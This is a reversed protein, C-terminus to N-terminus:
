SHRYKVSSRKEFLELLLKMRKGKESQLQPDQEVVMQAQKRALPILPQHEEFDFFAYQPLGSQQTGLIEGSGRLKMDEEAIIFGDDTQRMVQLRRKAVSTLRPHYLLLCNSKDAGRGVRGRLQHLQALGFNEAHEIIMITAEPVDVGVEIVTTAVLLQIPQPHDKETFRAMIEDKEKAKMKGHVLGVRDGFYHKLHLFREEVAKLHSKDSEEVLPCVWYAKKNERFSRQLGQVVEEVRNLAILHTDITQRGKPKQKIYSVDMDGYQTMLMTRPIPTATMVLLHAREGKQSLQLRQEVGFRHQEDIIVLGLQKFHVDEQFVAHTGILIDIEGASLEQLLQQRKKGKERGTLLAIRIDMDKLFESMKEIHQRALIDIPVMLCAQQKNEVAHLMALLAVITKGSGVDGQLLRIMQQDSQIDQEIESLAFQQAETLQFPLADLLQNKLQNNLVLPNARQRRHYYRILQLALQSALMEDFALRARTKEVVGAAFRDKPFHMEILAQQWSPWDESQMLSPEIWEEFDPILPKLQAIVKLLYKQTVGQGLPYTPEIIPLTNLKDEDVVFDPHTMQKQGQFHDLKGSVWKTSNLPLTQEIYNKQFHFFILQMYGTEDRCLIHYPQGKRKPAQHEIVELKMTCIKGVEAAQITPRYDRYCYSVPTHKLLDIYRPMNKTALLKQLKKAMTPGVSALSNVDTFLTHLNIVENKVQQM